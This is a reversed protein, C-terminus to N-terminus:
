QISPIINNLDEDLMAKLLLEGNKNVKFEGYHSKEYAQASGEEFFFANSAFKVKNNRVRYNLTLENEQLAQDQYIKQYTAINKSDLSVIIKGDHPEISQRWDSDKKNKPLDDNLANSVIFHLAMYDGQMLSRPDVPALELYVTKGQKIHQEKSYIAFNIVALIVILMAVVIKHRM